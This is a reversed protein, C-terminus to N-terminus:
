VILDNEENQENEDLMEEKMIEYVEYDKTDEQSQHKRYHKARGSKTQFVQGCYECPYQVSKHSYMQFNMLFKIFKYNSIEYFLSVHNTLEKKSKYKNDCLTCPYITGNFHEFSHATLERRRYFSAPCKDCHYTVGRDAPEHVSEIHRQLNKEYREAKGCYNCKYPKQSAKDSHRNIMHSQLGKELVIVDCVPCKVYVKFLTHVSKRHNEMDCRRKFTKGCNKETCEFDKSAQHIRRFHNKLDYLTNTAFDCLACKQSKLNEHSLMHQGLLFDTLYRKPCLSCQYKKEKYPNADPHDEQYHKRLTMVKMFSRDCFLCKHSKQNHELVHESLESKSEFDEGCIDCNVNEVEKKGIIVVTKSPSPVIFEQPLKRKIVRGSSSTITETPSENVFSMVRSPKTVKKPSSKPSQYTRFFHFNKNSLLLM